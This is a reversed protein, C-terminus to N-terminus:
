LIYELSRLKIFSGMDDNIVDVSRSVADKDVGNEKEKVLLLSIWFLFIILSLIFINFFSNEFSM